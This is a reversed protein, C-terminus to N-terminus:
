RLLWATAAPYSEKAKGIETTSMDIRIGNRLCFPVCELVFESLACRLAGGPTGGGTVAKAACCDDPGM